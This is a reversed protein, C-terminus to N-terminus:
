SLFCTRAYITDGLERPGPQVRSFAPEHVEEAVIRHFPFHPSLLIVKVADLFERVAPLPRRLEDGLQGVFELVSPVHPRFLRLIDTLIREILMHTFEIAEIKVLHLLGPGDLRTCVLPTQRIVLHEVLPERFHPGFRDDIDVLELHFQYAIKQIIYKQIKIDRGAGAVIVEHPQASVASPHFLFIVDRLVWAKSHLLQLLFRLLALLKRCLHEGPQPLVEQLLVLVVQQRAHHLVIGEDTGVLQRVHLDAVDVQLSLLDDHVTFEGLVPLIPGDAQVGLDDTQHHLQAHELMGGIFVEEARLVETRAHVLQVAMGEARLPRLHPLLQLPLVAVLEVAQLISADAVQGIGLADHHRTVLSPVRVDGGRVLVQLAIGERHM